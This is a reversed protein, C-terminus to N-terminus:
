PESRESEDAPSTPAGSNRSPSSDAKDGRIRSVFGGITRRFFFPIALLGALIAQLLLSGSGPDIYALLLQM